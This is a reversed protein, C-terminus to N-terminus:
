RGPTLYSAPLFKAEDELANEIAALEVALRMTAILAQFAMLTLM